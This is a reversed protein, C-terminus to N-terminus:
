LREPSPTTSPSTADRQDSRHVSAGRAFVAEFLAARFANSGPRWVMFPREILKYPVMCTLIVITGLILLAVALSGNPHVANFVVEPLLRGAASVVFFHYLYITYCMGGVIPVPWWALLRSTWAGRLGGLLVTTMLLPLLSEWAAGNQLAIFLAGVSMVALADAALGSMSDFAGRALGFAVGVGGM